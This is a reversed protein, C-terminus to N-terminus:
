ALLATRRAWRDAELIDELGPHMVVHHRRMARRIIRPIDQFGIREELFAHVAVENAANLVAPLTGGAKLAEYALGLCPFKRLNPPHFSLSRQKTLDCAGVPSSMREPYTLAYQIPLRMDPLGAQALISGDVFEVMSHIISQPHILVDIRDGGLGFLWHAELVELGKNMLTASDITIKKGMSWTPHKLAHAPTMHRLRRQGVRRFPGGSATLILRKVGQLPENKLCQFIASHESDVPILEAKHKKILPMVLEGAVVLSEKNALALRKGAKVAALSPVLGAAGSVGNLVIDCGDMEALRALGDEGTWVRKLGTRERVLKAQKEDKVVVAWPKFKRVQECLGGMEQDLYASLGAVQFRRPLRAIVELTQTGISGTSGLVVVRKLKTM